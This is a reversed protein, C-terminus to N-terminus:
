SKGTQFYVSFMTYAIVINSIAAIIDTVGRMAFLVSWHIERLEVKIELFYIIPHFVHLYLIKGILRAFGYNYTFKIKFYKVIFAHLFLKLDRKLFIITYINSSM